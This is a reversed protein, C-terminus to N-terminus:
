GKLKVVFFLMNGELLLLDVGLIFKDIGKGNKLDDYLEM